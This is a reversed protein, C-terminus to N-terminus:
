ATEVPARLHLVSRVVSFIALCISSQDAADKNSTPFHPEVANKDNM